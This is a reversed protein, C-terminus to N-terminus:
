LDEFSRNERPQAGDLVARQATPDHSATPSASRECRGPTSLLDAMGDNMPPSGLMEPIYGEVLMSDRPVPVSVSRTRNSSHDLGFFINTLFETQRFSPLSSCKSICRTKDAATPCVTADHPGSHFSSTEQICPALWQFSPIKQRRVPTVANIVKPLDQDNRPLKPLHLQKADSDYGGTAAPRDEVIDDVTLLSTKVGHHRQFLKKPHNRFSRLSRSGVLSRKSLRRKIKMGFPPSKLIANFMAPRRSPLQIAHPHDDPLSAAVFIRSLEM